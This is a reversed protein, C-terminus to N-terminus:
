VEAVGFGFVGFFGSKQFIRIQPHKQPPPPPVKFLAKQGYKLTKEYKQFNEESRSPLSLAVSDNCACNFPQLFLLM